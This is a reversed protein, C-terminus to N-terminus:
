TIRFLGSANLVLKFPTGDDATRSSDFTVFWLPRNSSDVIVAASAPGIAGGSADVSVDAADLMAGSTSVISSALSTFAIGGETWGNGYKEKARHPSAAGAVSDLTTHTATFTATNDLLVAKFSGLNDIGNALLLQATHNYRSITDAM